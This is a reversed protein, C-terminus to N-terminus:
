RINILAFFCKNCTCKTTYDWDIFNIPMFQSNQTPLNDYRHCVLRKIVSSKGCAISGVVSVRYFDDM